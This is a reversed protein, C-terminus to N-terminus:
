NHVRSFHLLLYRDNGADKKLEIDFSFKKQQSSILTFVSFLSFCIANRLVLNM